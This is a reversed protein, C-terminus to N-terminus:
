FYQNTYVPHHVSVAFNMGFSLRFVSGFQTLFILLNSKVKGGFANNNALSMCRKLWKEQEDPNEEGVGFFDAVSDKM